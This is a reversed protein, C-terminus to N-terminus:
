PSMDGQFDRLVSANGPFEPVASHQASTDVVWVYRLGQIVELIGSSEVHHLLQDFAVVQPRHALAEVSHVRVSSYVDKVVESTSQGSRMAHTDDM